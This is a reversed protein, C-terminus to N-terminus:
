PPSAPAPATGPGTVPKPHVTGPRHSFETRAPNALHPRSGAPPGYLLPPDIRQSVPCHDGTKRRRISQPHRDGQGPPGVPRHVPEYLQHLRHAPHLPRHRRFITVRSSDGNEEIEEDLHSRLHIDTLPQLFLKLLKPLKFGAPEGPYHMHRDLFAPFQAALSKVPYHEPLLLYTYFANNGWNTMSTKEGYIASDKLTSFSILVNPHLHAASPFPQFVGTVKFNYQNNMRIVKNIPDADGFYKRAVPGPDAPHLLPGHSSDAPQRQTRSTSCASFTPTPSSSTKRM